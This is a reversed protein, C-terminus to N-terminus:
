FFFDRTAAPFLVQRLDSQVQPNHDASHRGSVISSGGPSRSSPREKIGERAMATGLNQRQLATATSWDPPTVPDNTRGDEVIGRGQDTAISVM